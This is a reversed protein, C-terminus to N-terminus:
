KQMVGELPNIKRFRSQGSSNDFLIKNKEIEGFSIVIKESSVNEIYRLSLELTKDDSWTFAQAIKFPPLGNQNNKAQSFISPGHKTTEGMQWRGSAFSFDFAATDTKIRLLCLDDRFELTISQINKDNPAFTFTKGNVISTIADNSNKPPIPLALDALRQKLENASVEDAPLAKEGLAPFLFEWIMGIEGWMDPSDATFIVVADKDPIVVVFQGNAGNAQYSNNKARWFQYCYGQVGDNSSDRKGASMRADQYIKVSTAEEVWKKPLLQKGNWKGKQLYFQGFKALDETKLRLGWGGTNIGYADTEWDMGEIQLPDFLRPKLYDILKQGSIKTIIASLMYSAVSSYRYTKGPETLVPMALFSKVWIDDGTLLPERRMGTSMSLLDRIRLNSLNTGVTDPLYEPFFSVVKDDLSLKGESIAFGIATSTFSKSASNLTHKLEPAYPNWWGEAIVKGHRLFMFSHFEHRRTAASDLFTIIAKSSVGEAEPTSRPLSPGVQKSTCSVVALCLIIVAVSSNKSFRKMPSPKLLTPILIRYFYSKNIYVADQSTLIKHKRGLQNFFTSGSRPLFVIPSKYEVFGYRRRRISFHDSFFSTDTPYFDVKHKKVM